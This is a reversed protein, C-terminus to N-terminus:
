LNEDKKDMMKILVRKWFGAKKYLKLEKNEKVLDEIRAGARALKGSLRSWVKGDSEWYISFEQTNRDLFKSTETIKVFTKHELLEQYEM